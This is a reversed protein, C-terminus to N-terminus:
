NGARDPELAVFEEIEAARRDNWAGQCATYAALQDPSKSDWWTTLTVCHTPDNLEALLTALAAMKEYCAPKHHDKRTLTHKIVHERVQGNYGRATDPTTESTLVSKKKPYTSRASRNTIRTKEEEHIKILRVGTACDAAAPPLLEPSKQQMIM